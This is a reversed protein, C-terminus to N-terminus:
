LINSQSTPKKSIATSLFEILILGAYIKKESSDYSYYSVSIYVVFCSDAWLDSRASCGCRCDDWFFLITWNSVLTNIYARHLLISFTPLMWGLNNAFVCFIHRQVQDINGWALMFVVRYRCRKMGVSMLWIIVSAIQPTRCLPAMM